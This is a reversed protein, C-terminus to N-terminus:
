NEKFIHEKVTPFKGGENVLIKEAIRIKNINKMAEAATDPADEGTRREWWRKAKQRAFGTHELCVYEKFVRYGCKYDVRLMPLGRTGVFRAYNISDVDHWTDKALVNENGASSKLHHQFQFPTQCNPCIRVAAHVIEWCEPCEKMIPEGSGNGSLRIIPNDIPGNRMLNGAFDLVLCNEKGEFVRLGRGIIQVHLVPSSTPRVLGILDVAPIDVGTTLVAVSVLAQFYGNKFQEIVEDRNRSMKSHVCGTIVGNANLEEAIHEAHEICIAFILWKKRDEKYLLLEQVIEKTIGERDFARSLEGVIYDGGSKKINKADMRKKTAKSTVLCLHGNKQLLKISINYVIEDFFAKDGLHLYGTGLRFPTATFGIIPKTVQDFFKQYRTTKGPPILHAEDVIIINFQDFLEPKNYISQIGAVTINEITRAKLGASYLGVVSNKCLNTIAAYDQRLIEKVHSIVLIKQSPWKESVEKCFMAIIISKGSGTPAVVLPNGKKGARFYDFISKLAESQYTRPTFM